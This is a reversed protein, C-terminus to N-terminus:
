PRARHSTIAGEAAAVIREVSIGLEHAVTQGPASAGFRDVGVAPSGSDLYTRWGLTVGAEITVVPVSPPVVSDRYEDPQEAFLEVCPLSVVRSSIHRQALVEHAQLALLVESGTAILVVEPTVDPDGALVYGGSAVGEKLRTFRGTDLVPLKQRTLALCVPRDRMQIAVRWAAATENADAPRIVILGPILRLSALHEVPQHTPGDEGLAVSDHTFVHIVRLKGLASLRLAPRMYDSFVLFTSAFPILGGHYAMGNLIAGMAHERVGFHLNRGERHTSDFDMADKIVAKTSSALDASGGILEPLVEALANLAAGSADRTAMEEGGAGPFAPLSSEWGAPLEGEHRREFEAALEPHPARYREFAQLWRQREAAGREATGRCHERVEVPVHFAPQAPWGMASKTRLVEDEGLPEGHASATNQKGPSGYGITTRVCILSPANTQSRAAEVASFIAGTDNGDDVRQVHWGCASFRAPVDETFALETSGDITIRNDDYLVILKGLRLHGALSVAEASVGEMLDGDSCLVYTHHDVVTHDPRNFRAALSEEAIAMGVANAIGQGLPGTTAEVGPTLEFEPHGPTRSGWQRFARLDELSLDYGFLHLLGYLLASGHGASLVFRDRNPWAPDSSDFRMFKDFLVFAAPAAGMPMGPHGSRAREVMDVALFRLTDICLRDTSTSM